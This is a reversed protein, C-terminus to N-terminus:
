KDKKGALNNLNVGELYDKGASGLTGIDRSLRSLSASASQLGGSILGYKGQREISAQDALYNAYSETTFQRFMSSGGAGRMGVMALQSAIMQRFNRTSSLALEEAALKNQETELEITAKDLKSQQRSSYLSGATNAVTLATLTATAPDM